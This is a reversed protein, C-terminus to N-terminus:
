GPYRRDVMDRIEAHEVFEGRDAAAIGKEVERLFWQDYDLLRDIAEGVLVEAPRGLESAMRSLAAEQKATLHVEM